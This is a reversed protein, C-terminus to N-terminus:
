GSRAPWAAGRLHDRLAFWLMGATYLPQRLTAGGPWDHSPLMSLLDLATRDGLIAEALARGSAQALLVGHGSYGHAWSLGADDGIQPFRSTTVAVIGAWGHDIRVDGLAPFARALRPRVFGIVDDLPTLVYREGGAFLLRDDASRRYYDLAFRTDSVAVNSPLLDAARQGLPETAIVYSWVPMLRAAGPTRRGAVSVEGIRADCALIVQDAILRGAATTVTAPKGPTVSVAASHEFIRAGSAEARRALELVYNLPHVHGGAMDLFGGHYAGNVHTRTEAASLVRHGTFGLRDLTAAEAEFDALDAAFSAATLHGTLRLDCALGHREVLGAMTDRARLTLAILAQARAEGFRAVLEVAGHRFGPIMQGGSAGSAGAGVTAAEIVVVSVGAEVLRLAASLGTLGAGIIAVDCRVDGSLPPGPVRPLATAAYYSGGAV